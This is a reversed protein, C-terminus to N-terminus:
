SFFLMAAVAGFALVLSSGMAFTSSAAGTPNPGNSGTQTGQFGAGSTSSASNTAPRTNTSTTRFSTLTANAMTQNRSMMTSTGMSATANRTMTANMASTASAASVSAPIAGQIVFPGFYNTQTKQSIELAYDVGNPLSLPPTWIFQSGYSNDTLTMITELNNSQGRRLIITVPSETDNTSYTIAAPEGDTIPNPVHTFFLVKSQAAACAALASLLLAKAFMTNRRDTTCPTTTQIQYHDFRIRL